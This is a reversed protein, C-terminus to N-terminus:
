LVLVVVAFMLLLPREFRERLTSTGAAIPEVVFPHGLFDPNFGNSKSAVRIEQQASRLVATAADVSQWPRRRVVINLIPADPQFDDAFAGGALGRADLPMAIDFTRGVELGLFGAPLVGAITLSAHDVILPTGVVGPNANFRRRWLADSIVVVEGDPKAGHVDDAPTLLRGLAARVGLTQFFDGSFFERSVLEKTAGVTITSQSCCTTFAGIGDFLQRRRIEDFVAYSSQPRYTTIGTSSVLALREPEVVPLSRLILADVLSFVATNAGIGLALSLIAVATVVKSSRLSRVAVRVDHILGQM